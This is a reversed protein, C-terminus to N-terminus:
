DTSQFQARITCTVPTAGAPTTVRMRVLTSPGGAVTIPTRFSYHQTNDPATGDTNVKAIPFFAVGTNSQQLTFDARSGNAGCSLDTISLRMQAPVAIAGAASGDVVLILTQEAAGATTVRGSISRVGKTTFPM